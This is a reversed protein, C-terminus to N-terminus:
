EEWNVAILQLLKLQDVTTFDKRFNFYTLLFTWESKLDRKKIKRALNYLDLWYDRFDVRAWIYVGEKIPFTEEKLIGKLDRGSMLLCKLLTKPDTSTKSATWTHLAQALESTSQVTEDVSLFETFPETSPEEPLFM